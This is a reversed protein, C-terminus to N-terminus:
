GRRSRPSSRQHGVRARVHRLGESVGRAVDYAQSDGRTRVYLAGDVGGVPCEPVDLSVDLGELCGLCRSPRHLRGDLLRDCLVRRHHLDDVQNDGLRESVASRVDVDLGLALTEPNSKADVASQVVGHLQGGGHSGASVLRMLIRAPMFMTSRRRGWSPCIVISISSRSISMLTEVTDVMQPSDQTM